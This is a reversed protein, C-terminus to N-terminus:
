LPRGKLLSQPLPEWREAMQAIREAPVGHVNQWQGKGELVPVNSAMHLYPEMERVRTFTNAVVVRRGMRLCALAQMQCSRNADQIGSPEYQYAGSREFFMDAEFHEYGAAALAKAMTSKGSGPLGRILVLEGTSCSSQPTLAFHGDASRDTRRRPAQHAPTSFNATTFTM